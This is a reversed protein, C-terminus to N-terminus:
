SFLDGIAALSVGQIVSTTPVGGVVVGITRSGVASLKDLALSVQAMLSVDRLTSLITGDAAKAMSLSEGSTLVPPTDIIVYRFHPRLEKLVERLKGNSLLHHPGDEMKGAPLVFLNDIATPKIADQVPVTASLVDAFGLSGEVELLGAISPCRLDGDIILVDKRHTRALGAALQSTLTSKGEGGIASAVTIVKVDTLATSFSLQSALNLISEEYIAREEVPSLLRPQSPLKAVEGLVPLDWTFRIQRADVVRHHTLDWLIGLMFPACLGMLAAMGMKKYLTAATVVNSVIAEDTRRTVRRPAREETRL